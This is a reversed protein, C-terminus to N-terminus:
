APVEMRMYEERQTFQWRRRSLPEDRQTLTLSPPADPALGAEGLRSDWYYHWQHGLGLRDRLQLDRQAPPEDREDASTWEPLLVADFSDLASKLTAHQGVRAAVPAALPCSRRGLYLVFTPRELAKQLQALSYAGSADALQVAVISVSDCRYERASLLTGLKPREPWAIEQRRTRYRQKRLEPAVQVTHFDRLPFGMSHLKIGFRLNASLAAHADDDDRRLGLAAALLGLLASRSPHTGSHRSEGVAISGWSAMPAILRFVLAQM